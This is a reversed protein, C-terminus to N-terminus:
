TVINSTRGHLDTEYGEPLRGLILVALARDAKRAIRAQELDTMAAEPDAPARHWVRWYTRPRVLGARPTAYWDVTGPEVGVAQAVEYDAAEFLRAVRQEAPVEDAQRDQSM